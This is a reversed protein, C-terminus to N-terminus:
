YNYFGKGSKHGYYGADVMQKLLPAPRYKDENFSDYLVEISKLITDLGIMDATELPGMKHEFCEKFIRDIDEVNALNDQALFIAENITLMLVRNSIFGPWDKVLVHSKKMKKVLHITAALTEDSTHMAKIMEVTHKLPVPNMFHVGIVRDPHRNLKGFRTISIASTNAIIICERKCITDLQAHVKKKISWDETVNEIVYDMSALANYDTTMQLKKFVTDANFELHGRSLMTHLRMESVLKEKAEALLDDSIDVLTVAMGVNAAVEAIGRGMIGAGVIGLKIKENMM